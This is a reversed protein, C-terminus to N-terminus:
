FHQHDYYYKFIRLDFLRTKDVGHACILTKVKKDQAIWLENENLNATEISYILSSQKEGM